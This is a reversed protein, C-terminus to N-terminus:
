DFIGSHAEPYERVVLDPLMRERSYERTFM